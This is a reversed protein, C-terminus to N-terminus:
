LERNMSIVVNGKKHGQSIYSHAEVVQNLSYTKDIVSNLRGLIIIEKLEILMENLKKVPLIGTASFKAKKKGFLSSILMQFLLPISLVPSMFIGSSTLSNCCKTLSTKGVTDYIVDYQQENKTFDEQTYDIAFDAGLSKVLEFNALSCVATVEAEFHKALQIAATGLSGSAGNILIKQGKKLNALNKIFNMSTLAGDCMPAAEEDKLNNPKSVLIGDEAVCIFEANTGDGFLSEGFVTDGKEFLTVNEGVAQVEGSFGTGTIKTKPKSLGMFLRGFYPKGIRIMTDATTVSSAHVKILIENEKPIPKEVEQLQLVDPAGYKTCIIAKM